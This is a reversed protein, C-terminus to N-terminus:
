YATILPRIEDYAPGVVLLSCHRENYNGDAGGPSSISGNREAASLRGTGVSREVGAEVLCYMRRIM